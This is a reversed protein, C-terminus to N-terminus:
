KSSYPATDKIMKRRSPYGGMGRIKVMIPFTPKRMMKLGCKPCRPTDLGYQLKEITFGCGCEYEYIPM